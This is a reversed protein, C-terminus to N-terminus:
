KAREKPHEAHYLAVLAAFMAITLSEDDGLWKVHERETVEWRKRVPNYFISLKRNELARWLNAPDHMDPAPVEHDRLWPDAHTIRGCSCRWAIGYISSTDQEPVRATETSNCRRGPEWLRAAIAAKENENMM